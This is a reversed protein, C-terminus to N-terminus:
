SVRKLVDKAILMRQVESSGEGIRYHRVDRYMREIPYGSVIGMGGHIQVARDAVRGVMESCYLKCVNAASGVNLGADIQKLTEYVLARAAALDVETDALMWQIAQRESLPKGFTIRSKAYQASMELLRDAIGICSASVALRGDRLSEKALDFGQGPQGLLAGDAVRCDTLEIEALKIVDSGMTTDVRTINFGPTGRDVLFASVGGRTRKVPDTVAIVVVFHAEHAGNIYHKHGNLVWGGEVRTAQTTMASNDSGAAPETLAFATRLTGKMLGTLYKQRQEDTGHRAIAIPTLGGGGSALLGFIRHSRSFEELMLCYPFLGMGAGGVAEPLRMSLYGQEGMLPLLHDPLLGTEDVKKELPELEARVFKRLAERMMTLEPTLEYHM